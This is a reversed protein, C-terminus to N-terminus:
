PIRICYDEANDFVCKVIYFYFSEPNEEWQYVEVCYNLFEKSCDIKIKYKLGMDFRDIEFGIEPRYVNKGVAACFLFARMAPTDEVHLNLIDYMIEPSLCNIAMCEAEIDLSNKPYWDPRQAIVLSLVPILLATLKLM